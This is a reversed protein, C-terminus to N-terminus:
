CSTDFMASKILLDCVKDLGGVGPTRHSVENNGHRVDAGEIGEHLIDDVRFGKLQV